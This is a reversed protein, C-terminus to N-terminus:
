ILNSPHSNEMDDIVRQPEVPHRVGSYIECARLGAEPVLNAEAEALSM